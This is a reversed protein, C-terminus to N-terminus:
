FHLYELVLGEARCKFIRAFTEAESEDVETDLEVSLSALRCIRPQANRNDQPDPDTWWRSEVMDIFANVNLMDVRTIVNLNLLNPLIPDADEQSYKLASFIGEGSCETRDIELKALSPTAKLFRQLDESDIGTSHLSLQNLVCSSRLQLALLEGFDLITLHIVNSISLNDLAPLTLLSFLRDLNSSYRVTVDLRRLRPLIILTHPPQVPFGLDDEVWSAIELTLEQLYELQVLITSATQVSFRINTMKLKVIRSFRVPSNLIQYSNSAAISFSHLRPAPEFMPSPVDIQFTLRRGDSRSVVLDLEELMPVSVSPRDFISKITDEPLSLTLHKTTPLYHIVAATIIMSDFTGHIYISLPLSKARDLWRKMMNIPKSCDRRTLHVIIGKWLEPHKLAVTRWITCVECLLLPAVSSDPRSYVDGGLCFVFIQGLIEPPLRRILSFVSRYAYVQGCLDLRKNKIKDVVAQARELEIDLLTLHKERQLVM